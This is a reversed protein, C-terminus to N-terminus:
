EARVRIPISINQRRYLCQGQVGACVYYLAYAKLHTTKATAEAPVKVEFEVARTEQSLEKSTPSVDLRPTEIALGTDAHVWVTTPGAENTWQVKREANPTMELFVRVVNGPKAAHPVVTASLRVFPEQDLEIRGQPDPEEDHRTAFDAQPSPDAREARTLEVTLAIPEEGRALIDRQAQAVWDYFAYPKIMRPGYQQIRRRWIYQNPQLELARSWSVIARQFDETQRFDSEYRRRLAVGLRFHTPGHEPSLKVAAQYAAVAADLDTDSGWLILDDGYKRLATADSAEDAPSGSLTREYLEARTHSRPQSASSAPDSSTLFRDFERPDPNVARVVGAADLAVFIPVAKPGLLNVPDQVIPWDLGKWQAFLRCREAHQEQIVGLM